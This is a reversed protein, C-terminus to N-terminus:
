FLQPRRRPLVREKWTTQNGLALLLSRVGIFASVTMILPHFLALRRPLRFKSSILLWQGAMLLLTLASALTSGTPATITVALTFIPHWTILMIWFWVFLAPVVRYGFLAFYNKSFSEVAERFGNYMRVRAIESGDLLRWDLEHKKVERCLALDETADQRVQAHGGTQEYAQRTFLLLKGNAASFITARRLWYALGLPLLTVISWVVFPVTLQEGFTVVENRNLATVFQANTAAQANVLQEIAAPELFVDADLFLLLEGNAVQALQHCAWAKGTWGSPLPRGGILHVKPKEFSAALYTTQDTSNDDLVFIEINPYTQDLLSWLCAGITAEENRAPVLVSVLPQRAAAPYRAPRRMLLANTVAILGQVGVFILVRWSDVFLNWVNM